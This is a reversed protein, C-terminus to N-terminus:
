SSSATPSPADDARDDPSEGLKWQQVAVQAKILELSDLLIGSVADGMEPHTRTFTDFFGGAIDEVAENGPKGMDTLVDDTIQVLLDGVITQLERELASGILPLRRTVRSLDHNTSIAERARDHLYAALSARHETYALASTETLLGGLWSVIVERRPLLVEKTLRQRFPGGASVERQVGELVNIVIRDSLEELLVQYYKYVIPFPGSQSLDIVRLTQLRYLISVLRLLRLFRFLPLPICGLVDYWHVFPYFFWRHYTKRRIAVGWRLTLEAILFLTFYTDYVLLDPHLKERYYIALDPYHRALLLGSGSNLLIADLLLWLLNGGILVMVLLDLVLFPADPQGRLARWDIKMM